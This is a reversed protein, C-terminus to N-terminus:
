RLWIDRLMIDRGLVRRSIDESSNYMLDSIVAQGVYCYPRGYDFPKRSFFAGPLLRTMDQWRRLILPVASGELICVEDGISTGSPGIGIRGKGTVFLRRGHCLNELILSAQRIGEPVEKNRNSESRDQPVYWMGWPQHEYSPLLEATIVREFKDRLGGDNSMQRTVFEVWIPLVTLMTGDWKSGTVSVAKVSDEHWGRLFIGRVLPTILPGQERRCIVPRHGSASYSAVEAIHSKELRTGWLVTPQYIDSDHSAWNLVWSCMSAEPMLDTAGRTEALGLIELSQSHQICTMTFNAFVAKDQFGYGVESFQPRDRALALLGILKDRPDTSEYKRFRIALDLLGAKGEHDVHGAFDMLAQAYPSPSLRHITRLDSATRKLLDWSIEADGCKVILRKALATEQIVWIRRFWKRWFIDLWVGEYRKSNAKEYELVPEEKDRPSSSPISWSLPYSILTTLWSVAPGDKMPTMPPPNEDVTNEFRRGPYKVARQFAWSIDLSGVGLWAIVQSANSYVLHMKHTVQNTKETEDLQNICMQDIWLVRTEDTQRLYRLAKIINETVFFSFGNVSIRRRLVLHGGWAYSVAEFEAERVDAEVLHCMIPDDHQGPDLHLLRISPETIELSSYVRSNLTLWFVPVSRKFLPEWIYRRLRPLLFCWALIGPILIPLALILQVAMPANDEIDHLLKLTSLTIFRPMRRKGYEAIRHIYPWVFKYAKEIGTREVVGYFMFAGVFAVLMGAVEPSSTSLEVQEADPVVYFEYLFISSALFVRVPVLVLWIELVRVLRAFLTMTM